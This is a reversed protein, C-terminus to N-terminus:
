IAVLAKGFQCGGLRLADAVGDTQDIAVRWDGDDSWVAAGDLGGGREDSGADGCGTVREIAELAQLRVTGVGVQVEGGGVEVFGTGDREDFAGREGDGNVAIELWLGGRRDQDPAEIGRQDPRDGAYEGRGAVQGAGGAM